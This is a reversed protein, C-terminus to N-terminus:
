KGILTWNPAEPLISLAKDLHEISARFMPQTDILEKGMQAWQSGQGTFVFILHPKSNLSPKMIKSAEFSELGDTVCYSRYTLTERKTALSYAM